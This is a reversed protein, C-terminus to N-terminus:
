NTTSSLPEIQERINRFQAQLDPENELEGEVTALERVAYTLYEEPTCDERLNHTADTVHASLQDREHDIGAEEFAFTVYASAKVIPVRVADESALRMPLNPFELDTIEQLSTM